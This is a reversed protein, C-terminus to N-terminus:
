KKKIEPLVVRFYNMVTILVLPGILIGAFGFVAAGFIYTFFLLGMPVTDSGSLYPRLIMDPFWDVIIYVALTSVVLYSLSEVLIGGTSAQFWMNAILPIWVIKMGVVPILNAIGGLVGFLIPYPIMIRESQALMDVGIFVVIGLVASVFAVLINGFFTRYLDADIGDLFAATLQREKESNITSMFWARVGSGDKLLYFAIAFVLIVKFAIGITSKSLFLIFKGVDQNQQIIIALQNFDLTNLSVLVEQLKKNIRNGVPDGLGKLVQTLESSAVTFTYYLLIILPILLLLIAFGASAEKSDIKGNLFRYLPRLIYYIFLGYMLVDIFPQIMYLFLGISLLGLVLWHVRTM